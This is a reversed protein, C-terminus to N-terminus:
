GHDAAVFMVGSQGTGIKEGRHGGPDARVPFLMGGQGDDAQTDAVHGAGQRGGDDRGQMRCHVLHGRGGGELPVARFLAIIEQALGDGRMVVPGVTHLHVGRVDEDAVTGLAVHGVDLFQEGQGAAHRDGIGDIGDIHIGIGHCAARAPPRALAPAVEDVQGARFGVAEHRVEGVRHGVDDIKAIGVIGRARHQVPISQSGPHVIGAAM